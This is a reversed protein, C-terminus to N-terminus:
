QAHSVLVPPVPAVMKVTGWATAGAIMLTAILYIGNAMSIIKKRQESRIAVTTTKVVEETARQNKISSVDEAIVRLTKTQEFQSTELRRQAQEIGGVRSDLQGLLFMPDEGSRTVDGFRRHPEVDGDM